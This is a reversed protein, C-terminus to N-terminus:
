VYADRQQNSSPTTPLGAVSSISPEDDEEEDTSDDDSIHAHQCRFCSERYYKRTVKSPCNCARLRRGQETRYTKSISKLLPKQFFLPGSHMKSDRSVPTKMGSAQSSISTTFPSPTQSDTDTESDTSGNLAEDILSLWKAAPENDELVLVNGANLPVIEQFGLVYIDSHDDAPLFDNLNLGMHPTNGGVNWTAVFIRFAETNVASPSRCSYDSFILSGFRSVSDSFSKRLVPSSAIFSSSGHFGDSTNSPSANAASKEKTRVIKPLSFPLQEGSSQELYLLGGGISCDM